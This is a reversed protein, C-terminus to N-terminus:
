GGAGPSASADDLTPGATTGGGAPDAPAGGGIAGPGVAGTQGEAPLAASQVTVLENIENVLTPSLGPPIANLLDQLALRCSAPIDTPGCQVEVNNVAQMLGATVGPQGSLTSALGTATTAAFGSSVTSLALAAGLTASLFLRTM